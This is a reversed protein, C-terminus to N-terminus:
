LCGCGYQRDESTCSCPTGDPAAHVDLAGYTAPVHVVVNIMKAGPGLRKLARDIAGTRKSSYSGHLTGNPRFIQVNYEERAPSIEYFETWLHKMKGVSSEGVARDMSLVVDDKIKETRM